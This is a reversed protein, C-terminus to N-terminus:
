YVFNLTSTYHEVVRRRIYYGQEIYKAQGKENNGFEANHIEFEYIDKNYKDGKSKMNFYYDVFKEKSLNKIKKM